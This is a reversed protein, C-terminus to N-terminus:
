QVLTGLDKLKGNIVTSIIAFAGYILVIGIGAALLLRKAKEMREDEGGATAYMIAGAILMLVAIPGVFSIIFNTIGSLQEVGAKADVQPHVGTIGSYTNKDIKYFVKNIFVDGVSILVLGALSYLIGKKHKSTEEEEGGSTILKVASRVIMVTAFAGIIYKVFTVFIEVQKDFLRVRNLIEKPSGFLTGSEMDFIRGIDQSMSIMLFAITTYVLGRKAETVKEENDSATVLTYGLITIFLVGIAGVVIKTYKLGSLVVNKVIEQGPQEPDPAPISSSIFEDQGTTPLAGAIVTTHILVTSVALITLLQFTAKIVSKM